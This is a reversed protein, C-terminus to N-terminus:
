VGTGFGLVAQAGPIGPTKVDINRLHMRMDEQIGLMREEVPGRSAAEQQIRKWGQELSTFQATFTSALDPQNRGSATRGDQVARLVELAARNSQQSRIAEADQGRETTSRPGRNFPNWGRNPDTRWAEFATINRQAQEAQPQGAAVQAQTRDILQQLRQSRVADNPASQLFQQSQASLHQQIQDATVSGGGSLSSIISRQSASHAQVQYLNYGILAIAAAVALLAITVPNLVALLSSFGSVLGGARVVNFASNMTMIV